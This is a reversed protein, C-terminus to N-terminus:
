KKSIKKVASTMDKEFYDIDGYSALTRAIVKNVKFMTSLMKLDSISSVDIDNVYDKVEQELVKTSFYKKLLKKNGYASMLMQVKRTYYESYQRKDFAELVKANIKDLYKEKDILVIPVDFIKAANMDRERIEDFCLIGSPIFAGAGRGDEKKIVHNDFKELRRKKLEDKLMWEEKLNKVGGCINNYNTYIDTIGMAVVEEPKVDNFIFTLGYGYVMGFHNEDIYSVDIFERTNDKWTEPNLIIKEAYKQNEIGIVKHVLFEFDEGEYNIVQFGKPLKTLGDVLNKQYIGKIKEDIRDFYTYVNDSWFYRLKDYYKLLIEKKNCYMLEAVSCFTIYEDMSFEDTTKMNMTIKQVESVKNCFKKFRMGFYNQSIYSKIKGINETNNIENLYYENRINYINLLDEKNKIPFKDRNIDLVYCKFCQKLKEDDVDNVDISDIIDECRNYMKLLRNIKSENNFYEDPMLKVFKYLNEKNEIELLCNCKGQEFENYKYVITKLITNEYSNTDVANELFKRDIDSKVSFRQTIFRKIYFNEFLPKIKELFERDVKSSSTFKFAHQKLSINNELLFKVVEGVRSDTLGEELSTASLESFNSMILESGYFDRYSKKFLEDIYYGEGNKIKDEVFDYENEKLSCLTERLEPSTFSSNLYSIIEPYKDELNEM